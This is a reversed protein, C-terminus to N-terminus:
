VAWGWDEGIRGHSGAFPEFSDNGDPESDPISGKLKNLIDFLDSMHVTGDCVKRVKGSRQSIPMLDQMVLAVGLDSWGWEGQFKQLLLHAKHHFQASKNCKIHHFELLDHM